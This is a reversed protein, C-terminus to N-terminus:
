PRASAVRKYAARWASNLGDIGTVEIKDRDTSRYGESKRDPLIAPLPLELLPLTGSSRTRSTVTGGISASRTPRTSVLRTPSEIMESIASGPAVTSLRRLRAGSTTMIPGVVLACGKLAATTRPVRGCARTNVNDASRDRRNPGPSSSTASNVGSVRASQRRRYLDASPIYIEM